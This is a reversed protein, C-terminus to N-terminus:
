VTTKHCEIRMIPRAKSRRAVEIFGAREFAALTGTWAFVDPMRTTYPVVPYGEVIKGGRKEVFKAAARLLQVSVGKGRYARAIFLCSISWVDEADIPALVRSRQLTIFDRRPAVSCWGIPRQGKYALIGPSQGLKVLSKLRRKNSAGKGAQWIKHTLRWTMCWCGGCAGRNGFLDELDDWNKVSLPKFSLKEM